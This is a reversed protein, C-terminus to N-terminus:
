YNAKRYGALIAEAESEFTILNYSNKMKKYDDMGPLHYVHSQKNARVEVKDHATAELCNYGTEYSIFVKPQVNFVFIHFCIGEGDDEVSYAEMELGSALLNEGEFHPTVRYMVHMKTERIFNGVMEEFPLMSEANMYRTGTILNKENADEGALQHAILHSRNYLSQGEVFDYRSSQWATPKIMYIDGRSSKPMLEVGLKAYATTCRGLEDLEGYSEFAKKNMDKEDFEPVGDGITVYAKGTYEPIEFEDDDAYSEKDDENYDQLLGSDQIIPALDDIIEIGECGCLLCLVTFISLIKYMLKKM